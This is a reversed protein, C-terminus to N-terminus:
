NLRHIFRKAFRETVRNESKNEFPPSLHYGNKKGEAEIPLREVTGM